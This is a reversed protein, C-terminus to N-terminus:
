LKINLAISRAAHLAYCLGRSLSEVFQLNDPNQLVIPVKSSTPDLITSVLLENNNEYREKLGINNLFNQLKSIFKDRVQLAPCLLLFHTLDEDESNCLPCTASSNQPSYKATKNQLIYTGSVLKAKIGAKRVALSDDNTNLWINHVVGRRYNSRNLYKLSVRDESETTIKEIWFNVITKKINLNWLTKVPPDNLLDYISPFDYKELIKKVYIFWSSSSDKKLALQREAIDREVGTSRLINGLQNLIKIHLDAEVPIEGALIYVAADATRKPLHMLQKLLTKHYQNIVTVDKKKLVQSELGYLMRPKIYVNWLRISVKPNIGNYGHFGAGMLSYATRRATKVAKEGIEGATQVGSTREIGIHTYTDVVELNKGNLDFMEKCKQITEQDKLNFTMVKSKQDSLMYREKNAYNEQIKLMSTLEFYQKSLLLEDDACTPSGMPITGIKFGLQHKEFLDLAPNIFMKYATPSWIGGQRVGQFEQFPKSLSGEWKVMSEMNSYWDKMLLWDKGQLGCLYLKRLMSDHWVVDFAKSADLYAAFLPNKQDIAEAIAETLLLGAYVPSTHKTFGRQLNNQLQELSTEITDLHIREFIKGIVSSVTIRRYSNPDEIPKNNKKYIPTVIGCKFSSPIEEETLILDFLYSLWPYLTACGYKLSEVSINHGDPSKGNKMKSITKVINEPTIDMKSETTQSKCIATINVIDKEVQTKFTEDYCDNQKPRSLDGFYSAWGERIEDTTNLNRDDVFLRALVSKPGQRQKRILKYFLLCIELIEESVMSLIHRRRRSMYFAWRLHNPLSLHCKDIMNMSDTLRAEHLIIYTINKLM